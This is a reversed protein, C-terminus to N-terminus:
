GALRALGLEAPSAMAPHSPVIRLSYGFGGARDVVMDADFRYRGGGFSEAVVAAVSYSGTLVDDSTTGGYLVQVEVDEPSLDDLTVFARVAVTAGVQPSEGLGDAEVHEVRVGSWAARVRQKWSALDRAAASDERFTRAGRAAPAYLQEVYDRVMRSALVKPGLSGFNHRLMELWGKPLGEGDLDYFRPAVEGEILDYLATAELDDRRDPHGVGDASSIAWGNAGDYWENWWGDLISLNLGANLAAKMGSTGCAEFPRLPNNLWVDCGPYLQQAMAIDYNPLFAIRHRVEPDETFEVMQQIMKKGGEDAPHAKGAVVIQVPRDPHLLLAKLRLPDRLMMTLRKYSPVRRAFGITLV